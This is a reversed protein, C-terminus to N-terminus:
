SGEKKGEPLYLEAIHQADLKFVALLAGVIDRRRAKVDKITFLRRAHLQNHLRVEIALPLELDELSPPGVPVGRQADADSVSQPILTRWIRGEADTWDVEKLPESPLSVERRRRAKAKAAPTM